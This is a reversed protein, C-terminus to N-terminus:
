RGRGFGYRIDKGSIENAAQYARERGDPTADTHWLGKREDYQFNVPEGGSPMERLETLKDKIVQGPDKRFGIVMKGHAHDEGLQFPPSDGRGDHILKIHRPLIHPGNPNVREAFSPEAALHSGAEFPPDQDELTPARLQEVLETGLKTGTEEALAAPDKKKRRRKPPAHAAELSELQEAKSPRNRTKGM